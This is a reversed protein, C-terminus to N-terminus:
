SKKEKRVSHKLSQPAIEVARGDRMVAIKTGTAIAKDVAIQAAKHLAKTIVDIPSKKV